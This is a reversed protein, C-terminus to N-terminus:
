QLTVQLPTLSNYMTLSRKSLRLLVALHGDFLSLDLPINNTACAGLLAVIAQGRDDKSTPTPVQPIHFSLYLLLDLQKLHM